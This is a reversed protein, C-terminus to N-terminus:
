MRREKEKALEMEIKEKIKEPNIEVEEQYKLFKENTEPKDFNELYLKRKYLVTDM